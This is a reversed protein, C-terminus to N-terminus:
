LLLKAVQCPVNICILSKAMGLPQTICSRIQCSLFVICVQLFTSKLAICCGANVMAFTCLEIVQLGLGANGSPINMWDAASNQQEWSWASM